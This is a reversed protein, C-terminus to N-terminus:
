NPLFRGVGPLTIIRLRRWVLVASLLNMGAVAIASALAAGLLADGPMVMVAVAVMLLLGFLASNRVDREHGSMMLLNGVSGTLVNIAQGVALISLAAGGRSFGEGYIGMVHDGALVLLLFLPSVALSIFLTFRRAVHGLKAINGNAYLEAFKPALVTNVSALFFTVLMVLRTAAGFVGADEASGWVGLLFLPVWPLLGRTICSMLWLPRASRWLLDSPFAARAAGPRAHRWWAAGLLAASATALVYTMSAGAIGFLGVLPWLLVLAVAPHIVGAVLMANRIRKLGKLSEALLTMMSFTFVGFSMWRLPSALGPENFLREAIPTSLALVAVSFALSAAAVRRMGAAFVANVQGGEGKAMGAAIFRLLVNDFGLRTVVSGIMTISLALFYLGAGEAGLMRAIVVNLAFALVAGIARLVFALSAGLLVEHM